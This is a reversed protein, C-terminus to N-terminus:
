VGWRLPKGEVIVEDKITNDPYAIDITMRVANDNRNVTMAFVCCILRNLSIDKLESEFCYYGDKDFQRITVDLKQHPDYM